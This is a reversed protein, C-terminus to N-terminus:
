NIAPAAIMAIMLDVELVYEAGDGQLMPLAVTASGREAVALLEDREFVLRARGISDDASLDDLELGEVVLSLEDGPDGFRLPALDFDHRTGAEVDEVDPTTLAASEGRATRATLTFRVEDDGPGSTTQLCQMRRLRVLVASIHRESPFAQTTTDVFAHIGYHDSIDRGPSWQEIVVESTAAHHSYLMGPFAFMYDLREVTAGFRSPDEVARAPHDDHFSSVVGDDSESTGTPRSRGGINTTPALDVGGALEAVLYDYLDRHAFYDVNFDGFLIAPAVVDRSGRIFAALHRIQARVAARAGATTGGVTPHAAQTHTLFVDVPCPHGTRRIRAHLVGKNTLCDDGSCQRYLTQAHAEIPHRSLLLLGGGMVEVDTGVLDIAEHPGDIAHPYLDALESMVRGRDSSTWMESLGVVDPQRERLAAILRGLAADRDIGKYFPWPLLAMNQAYFTLPTDHVLETLAGGVIRRGHVLDHVLSRNDYRIAYRDQQWEIRAFPSRHRPFAHHHLPEGGYRAGDDYHLELREGFPVDYSCHVSSGGHLGGIRVRSHAVKAMFAEFTGFEAASGIQTIFVNTDGAVRIERDQWPGNDTWTTELACFLAVYGDGRRGFFWRASDHNCRAAAPGSTADFQDKPFWAHTREGFLTEQIAKAQYMTIAAGRVQVVRPQVVNGTWWNPGDHSTPFIDEDIEILGFALSLSLKSGASPYSTWVMAGKSLSAVCPWGQFNIQGRRYNQVSALTAPGSRHSYINARSLVSGETFVSFQDAADVETFDPASAGAIAGATGGVVAGVPGAAAFGAIAGGIGGLIGAGVDEATDIINAVTRILPLIKSFPPTDLLGAETAVRRSAIITQKTAYAGRSWWFEMDDATSTGVGYLHAEDFDISVRSRTTFREPGAAGIAILVDPPRYAPSTALFAAANSSDVFHRQQGFLIEISDRTPQEWFCNKQEFYARGASGAFGGGQTHVALDFVLLDMVMAARTRIEPDVAFDALNLLPMIDEVYYGPANWEAFGLRLRENLWRLVRRRAHTVHQAGTMDGPRPAGSAGEKRNRRQSIFLDAPWFQGALYEATAFLIRHNESWYTMDQGPEM